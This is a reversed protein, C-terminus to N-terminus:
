HLRDRLPRPTLRETFTDALEADNVAAGVEGRFHEFAEEIADLVKPPPGGAGPPGPPRLEELRDHMTALSSELAAQTKADLDHEEVFVSVEDLLRGLHEEGRQRHQEARQQEIEELVESRVEERLQDVDPTARDLPALPRPPARLPRAPRRQARAGPPEARHVRAQRPGPATADPSSLMWGLTTGTWGLLAVIALTRWFSVNNM